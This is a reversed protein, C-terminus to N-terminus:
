ISVGIATKILAMIIPIYYFRELNNFKDAYDALDNLESLDIPDGKLMNLTLHELVSLDGQGTYFAESFVYYDDVAVRKIFPPTTPRPEMDGPSLQPLIKDVTPSRVGAREIDRFGSLVPKDHLNNSYPSDKMCVVSQIGSWYITRLAPRQHYINVSTIGARQAVSYLLADDCTEIADFVTQEVGRAINEVGLPKIMGVTPSLDHEFIARVFRTLFPDYTPNEQMPLILTKFRDVYFDRLYLNAIRKYTQRLGRTIGVDEERILPTLGKRLLQQDYYHTNIVRDKLAKAYKATLEGTIRFSVKTASETYPSGRGTQEIITAVVARGNGFDMVFIDGEQPTTVGPFVASGTSDFGRHPDTSQNHNLADTIRIELGKVMELQSFVPPLNVDISAAATDTGSVRAYYDVRMRSGQSFTSLTNYTEQRTDVVPSSYPEDHLALRPAPQKREVPPKMVAM